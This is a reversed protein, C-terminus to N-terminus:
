DFFPLEIPWKRGVPVSIESLRDSLPSFRIVVYIVCQPRAV